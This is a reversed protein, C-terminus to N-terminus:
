VYRAGEFAGARESVYMILFAQENNSLKEHLRM